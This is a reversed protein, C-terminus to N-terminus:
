NDLYEVIIHGHCKNPVCFCGLKKDKLEKIRFKFQADTAIRNIFYKRYLELVAQRSGGKALIYPNGFYGDQGNGTRGIYVDYLEKYINVVRTM